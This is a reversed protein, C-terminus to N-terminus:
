NVGRHEPTGQRDTVVAPTVAPPPQTAAERMKNPTAARAKTDAPAPTAARRKTVLAANTGYRAADADNLLMRTTHKGVVVEYLRLDSSSM